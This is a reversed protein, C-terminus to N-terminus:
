EVLHVHWREHYEPPYFNEEVKTIGTYELGCAPFFSEPSHGSNYEFSDCVMVNNKKDYWIEFSPEQKEDFFTVSESDDSAPSIVLNKIAEWVEGNTLKDDWYILLGM